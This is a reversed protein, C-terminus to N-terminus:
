PFVAFLKSLIKREQCGTRLHQFDALLNQLNRRHIHRHEDAALASHSFLHHRPHNM